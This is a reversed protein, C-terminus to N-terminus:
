RGYKILNNVTYLETSLPVGIELGRQLLCTGHIRQYDGGQGGANSADQVGRAPEYKSVYVQMFLEQVKWMKGYRDYYDAYLPMWSEPDYDFIMHDYIYGADAVNKVEVQYPSIRERQLGDWLVKGEKHTVKPLDAHRVYLRDPRGLLKYKNRNIAGDWIWNDDKCFDGSATPDTRQATSVRRVRRIAPTWSWTDYPQWSDKYRVQLIINGKSEIPFFFESFSARLIQKPNDVEPTPAWWCRASYNMQRGRSASMRDYKIKGDILYAESGASDSSDGRSWRDFNWACEIGAKPEPFCVGAVYDRLGEKEDIWSKGEKTYKIRGEPQPLTQYPVIEFWSNQWKATDKHMNYLAVPFFDKVQDVNSGDIKKGVWTKEWERVKALQEGEWSPIPYKPRGYDSPTSAALVLSVMGTVFLLVLFGTLTNRRLM